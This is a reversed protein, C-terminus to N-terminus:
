KKVIVKADEYVTTGDIHVDCNSLFFNVWWQVGEVYEPRGKDDFVIKKKADKKQIGPFDKHALCHYMVASLAPLLKKPETFKLIRKTPGVDGATQVTAQAVLENGLKSYAAENAISTASETLQQQISQDRRDAEEKAKTAQEDALRQRETDDKANKLKILNEKLEPLKARWENIVPTSLRLLEENWKEWPETLAITNTIDLFEKETFLDKRYPVNFCAIYEELKVTPRMKKYKDIREDIDELTAIRFYEASDTDGRKVRTAMLNNFNNLIAAGIDVLHNERDKKRQADDELKKKANIKQQDYSALLARVRTYESNKDDGLPREFEMLTKKLEDIPKSIETRLGFIKNYADRANACIANIVQRDEDDYVETIEKLAATANESLSRMKPLHTNGLKVINTITDGVVLAEQKVPLTEESM